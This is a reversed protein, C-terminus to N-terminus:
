QRAGRTMLILFLAAERFESGNAALIAKGQYEHLRAM